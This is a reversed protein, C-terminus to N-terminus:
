TFSISDLVPLSSLLDYNSFIFSASLFLSYVFSDGFSVFIWRRLNSLIFSVKISSHSICVPCFHGLYLSSKIESFVPFIRLLFPSGYSACWIISFENPPSCSHHFMCGAFNGFSCWAPMWPAPDGALSSNLYNKKPPIM